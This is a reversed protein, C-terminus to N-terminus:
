KIRLKKEERERREVKKYRERKHDKRGPYKVKTGKTIGYGVLIKEKYLLFLLDDKGRYISIKKM